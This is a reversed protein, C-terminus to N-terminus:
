LWAADFVAAQAYPSVGSWSSPSDATIWVVRNDEPVVEDDPDPAPEEEPDVVDDPDAVSTIVLALPYSPQTAIRVEADGFGDEVLSTLRDLLTNVTTSM